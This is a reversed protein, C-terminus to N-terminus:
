KGSVGNTKTNTGEQSRIGVFGELLFVAGRQTSSQHTLPVMNQPWLITTGVSKRGISIRLLQSGPTRGVFFRAVRPNEPPNKTHKLVVLYCRGEWFAVQFVCLSATPESIEFAGQTKSKGVHLM